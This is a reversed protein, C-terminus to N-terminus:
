LQGDLTQGRGTGGTRAQYTFENNRDVYGREAGVAM